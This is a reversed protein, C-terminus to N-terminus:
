VPFRKTNTYMVFKAECKSHVYNVYIVRYHLTYSHIEARALAM